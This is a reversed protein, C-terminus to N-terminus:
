SLEEFTGVITLSNDLGSLDILRTIPGPKVIVAFERGAERFQRDAMVLSRLGTSDMFSTACLDIALNSEGADFVDKVAREVDGITALDVEGEIQLAHWGGAMPKQDISLGTM